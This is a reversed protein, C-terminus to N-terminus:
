ITRPQLQLGFGERRLRLNYYVVAKVAQLVPMMIALNLLIMVLIVLQIIVSSYVSLDPSLILNLVKSMGLVTVTCIFYILTEITGLILGVILLILKIRFSYHNTLKWSKIFANLFNVKNELALPLDTLLFHSYLWLTPIFLAAFIALLMVLAIVLAIWTNRRVISNEFLYNGLSKLFQNRGILELCFATVIFSLVLSIFLVIMLLTSKLLFSWRRRKVYLSAAKVSEPFDILENFALRSILAYIALFNAWGYLPVLLWLYAVLSLKFYLKLNARYLQLSVTVVNGISLQQM